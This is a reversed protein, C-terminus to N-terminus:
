MKEPLIHKRVFEQLKNDMKWRPWDVHLAERIVEKNTLKFVSLSNVVWDAM